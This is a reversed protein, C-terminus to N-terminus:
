LKRMRLIMTYLLYYFKEFSECVIFLDVLGMTLLLSRRISVILLSESYKRVVSINAFINAIRKVFKGNIDSLDNRNIVALIAYCSFVSNPM